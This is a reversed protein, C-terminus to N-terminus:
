QAVGLQQWVITWETMRLDVFAANRLRELYLSEQRDVEAQQLEFHLRRRLSEADSVPERSRELLEIIHLGMPTRIIESREGEDLAMAAREYEIALEGLKFKGIRGGLRASPDSNHATALDAFDEGAELAAEVERLIRMASAVDEDSAGPPVARFIHRTTLSIEMMGDPYREALAHELEEDSVQVQAAVDMSLLRMRTLLMAMFERFDRPDIGEAALARDFGDETLGMAQRQRALYDNIEAETPLMERNKAEAHLLRLDVLYDMVEGALQERGEATNLLSRDAGVVQLYIPLARVIDSATVVEDEVRAAIRDVTAMAAQALAVTPSAFSLAAAIILACRVSKSSM